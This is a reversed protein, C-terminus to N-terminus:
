CGQAGDIILYTGLAAGIGAGIGLKGALAKNAPVLAIANAEDTEIAQMDQDYETKALQLQGQVFTPNQWQALELNLAAIRNTYTQNDSMLKQIEQNWANVKEICNPDAACNPNAQLAGSVQGTLVSIRQNNQNIYGQNRNIEGQLFQPKNNIENVRDTYRATRSQKRNAFDRRIRTEGKTKTLAVIGVVVASVVLIAGIGIGACGSWALGEVESSQLTSALIESMQEQTLTEPNIGRLSSNLTKRFNRYEKETSITRVYADIDALGINKAVLAQTMVEISEQPQMVGSEVRIKYDRLESRILDGNGPAGQTLHSYLSAAPPSAIVESPGPGSAQVLSQHTFVALIAATITKKIPKMIEIRGSDISQIENSSQLKGRGPIWGRIGLSRCWQIWKKLLIL